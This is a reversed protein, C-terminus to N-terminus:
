IYSYKATCRRNRAAVCIIAIGARANIRGAYTAARRACACAGSNVWCRTWNGEDHHCSM